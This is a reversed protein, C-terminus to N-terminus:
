LVMDLASMFFNSVKTTLLTIIPSEGFDMDFCVGDSDMAILGLYECTLQATGSKFLFGPQSHMVVCDVIIDTFEATVMAFFAKWTPVLQFSM